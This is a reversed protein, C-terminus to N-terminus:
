LMDQCKPFVGFLNKALLPCFPCCGCAARLADSHVLRCMEWGLFRRQWFERGPVHWCALARRTGASVVKRQELNSSQLKHLM